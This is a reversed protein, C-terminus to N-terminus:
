LDGKVIKENIKLKFGNIRQIDPVDPLTTNRAAEEFRTRYEDLIKYFEPIPSGNGDLYENNRVSMLLDHEYERYTIIEQKKLIDIGMIYLRLLHTMHKGLKDHEIAQKNRKGLKDYSKRINSLESWLNLYDRLPYRRLNVDMFIESELSEELSKDVYLRIHNGYDHYRPRLDYEAHLLTQLIHKEKETQRYKRASKNNLRHLQSNAYGTFTHICKKSLFMHRNDLLERGIDSLYLYHEPRCGLIEITNPNCETLLDLIKNFSYVVTDTTVDTVQHFDRNLLIQDKPNLAVGRIDLDSGPTSTGYAHSGGLTLLAIHALNPNTKLFGYEPANLKERIKDTM